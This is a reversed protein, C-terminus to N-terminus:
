SKFGKLSLGFSLGSFIQALGGFIIISKVGFITMLSEFIHTQSRLNPFFRNRIGPDFFAGSGLVAVSLIPSPCTGVQELRSNPRSWVVPPLRLLLLSRRLVSCKPAM